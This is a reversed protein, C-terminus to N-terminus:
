LHGLERILTDWFRLAPAFAHAPVREDRGHAFYDEGRMWVSLLSYSPIGAARYYAADSAGTALTPVLPLGAHAASAARRLLADIDPRLPSPPADPFREVLEISVEADAVVQQLAAHVADIPTGPLVRCNVTASANQPLANEAHGAQLQTAVCTTRLTAASEADAELLALAAHAGPDAAYTRMAAGLADDRLAGIARFYGLTVSSPHVPFRYAELRVLAHALRYIANDARPVSSHGGANRVQLRFSAYTKEAAQYCLAQPQGRADLPNIDGDAFLAFEADGVRQLLLRTSAMATEEDGSLALVIDRRPQFGEERLRALTTVLMALEFKADVSGRGYLFGDHEVLRFPDRQWDAPNATVVDMHTSLVLPKGGGSGPFRAYLAATDAVPLIEIDADAYGATRLEAAVLAALEPVRGRGAETPIAVLRALLARARAADADPPTATAAPSAAALWLALAACLRSLPVHM